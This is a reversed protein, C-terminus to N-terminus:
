NSCSNIYSTKLIVLEELRVFGADGAKLRELRLKRDILQWAEVFAPAHGFLRYYRPRASGWQRESEEFLPVMEEPTQVEDCYPIRPM